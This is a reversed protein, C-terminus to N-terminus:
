RGSGRWGGWGVGGDVDVAVAVTFGALGCGVRTVVAGAQPVGQDAGALVGEGRVQRGVRVTGPRPDRDGGAEVGELPLDVPGGDTVVAALEGGGGNPAQRAVGVDDGDREAGAALDEVDAAGVAQDGRRQPPGQDAPVPVAREGAAGFWRDHAVGVVDHVPGVVSGRAQGVEDQQAPVVVPDDV